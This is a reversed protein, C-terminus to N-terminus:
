SKVDLYKEISSIDTSWQHKSREEWLMFSVDQHNLFDDYTSSNVTMFHRILSDFDLKGQSALIEAFGIHKIHHCMKCLAIMGDLKQIHKNDVYNYSWIEHADLIGTADCIGCKYNYEKYVNRRIIDWENKSKM